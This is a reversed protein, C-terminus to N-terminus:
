FRHRSIKRIDELILDRGSLPNLSKLNTLIWYDLSDHRWKFVSKESIVASRLGVSTLEYFTLFINSLYILLDTCCIFVFKKRFFIDILMSLLRPRFLQLLICRLSSSYNTTLGARCLKYYVMIRLRACM